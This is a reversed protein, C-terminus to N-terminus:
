VRRESEYKFENSIHAGLQQENDIHEAQYSSRSNILQRIVKLTDEEGRENTMAKIDLHALVALGTHNIRAM